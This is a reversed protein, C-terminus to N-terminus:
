QVALFPVYQALDIAAPEPLDDGRCTAVDLGRRQEGIM